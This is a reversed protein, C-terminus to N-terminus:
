AIMKRLRCIFQWGITVNNSTRGIRKEDFGKKSAVSRIASLLAKGVYKEEVPLSMWLEEINPSGGTKEYVRKNIEARKNTFKTKQSDEINKVAEDIIQVADGFDIDLADAVHEPCCFYMEIDSGDTVFSFIGKDLYENAWPELEDYSHCDRDRHVGFKHVDGLASKLSLIHKGTGLKSVGDFPFISVARELADDQKLLEVILGVRADESCLVASKDLVGWGLAKRIEEGNSAALTQGKKLWVTISDRSLGNVVFPSHTTIVARCGRKRAERELVKVLRSQLTPHLHSEPEDILLLNPEYLVLYALVQIAHILGTGAFELPKRVGVVSTSVTAQVHYDSEDEFSVSIDLDPYVQKIADLFDSLQGREVIRLLINRLVTNSDGAAAKRYVNRTSLFPEEVPIGSIGPIYASFNSDRGRFIELLPQPISPSISIGENRASKLVASATHRNGDSDVFEYAVKSEPSDKINGWVGGHYLEKYNQSPLYDLESLSITSPKNAEKSYNMCRAAFHLAQLTSSKGSNNSGVLVTTSSLDFDIREAGKFREVHVKM